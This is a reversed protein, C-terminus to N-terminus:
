SFIVYWGSFQFLVDSFAHFSLVFVIWSYNKRSIIQPIYQVVAASVDEPLTQGTENKGGWGM